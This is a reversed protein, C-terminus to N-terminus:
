FRINEIYEVLINNGVAPSIRAALAAIDYIGRVKIRQVGGEVKHAGRSLRRTGAALLTEQYLSVFGKLDASRWFQNGPGSSCYSVIRQIVQRRSVSRLSRYTVTDDKFELAPILDTLNFLGDSVNPHGKKLPIPCTRFNATM